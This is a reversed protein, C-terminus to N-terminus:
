VTTKPRLKARPASRTPMPLPASTQPPTQPTFPAPDADDVGGELVSGSTKKVVSLGGAFGGYDLSRHDALWVSRGRAEARAALTDLMDTIGAASMWTSPEDWLELNCDWGLQGSILDAMGISIALRLRQAEGGSWAEFPMQEDSHPSSVLISFGRKLTGSKTEQEVSFRVTWGILGLAVLANNVEVELQTLVQEVVFLRLDRFGKQWFEAGAAVRASEDADSTLPAVTRELEAIAAEAEAQQALYPNVEELTAQHNEESLALAREDTRVAAEAQAVVQTARVQKQQRERDRARARELNQTAVQLLDVVQEVSLRAPEAASLAAALKSEEAARERDAHEATVDQGCQSCKVGTKLNRIRVLTRESLEIAHTRVGLEQLAKAHQTRLTALEAELSSFDPAEGVTALQRKALLLAGKSKALNTRYTVIEATLRLLKDHRRSNWEEILAPWPNERLQALRGEAHAIKQRLKTEELKLDRSLKGAGTAAREWRELDLVESLLALRDAPTLDVFHPSFQAHYVAQLFTEPGVGVVREVETQDVPREPTDPAALTLVNPNWARHLLWRSGDHEFDITVTCKPSGPLWCQVNGAKLGRSTRGYLGWYLAEFLTSKGAGNAELEPEVENRGTVHYLGPTRDVPRWTQGASFSRFGRVTLALVRM